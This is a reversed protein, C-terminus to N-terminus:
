LRRGLYPFCRQDAFYGSWAGARAGAPERTSIIMGTYPVAIRICAIVKAFLEDSLGNDFVDPDIDDARKIRPVSITHPGVGHVAELHEAHMLLGAFEYKYMELGFLVGLGVDDIGGDM